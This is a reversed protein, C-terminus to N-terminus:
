QESATQIGNMSCTLYESGAPSSRTVSVCRCPLVTVRRLSMLQVNYLLLCIIVENQHSVVIPLVVVCPLTARTVQRTVMVVIMGDTVKAEHCVHLESAAKDYYHTSM